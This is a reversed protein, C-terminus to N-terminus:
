KTENYFILINKNFNINFMYCKNIIRIFYFTYNFMTFYNYYM